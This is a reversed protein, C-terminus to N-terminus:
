DPGSAKDPHMQKIAVSFEEFTMEAVLMHNQEETIRRESEDLQLIEVNHGSTFVATYYDKVVQCMDEHNSVEEGSDTELFPLYIAKKRASASAHFFKTNADGETLWFNKARQKWYVEEYCLLDNLKEKKMFYNSIGDEDVRDVLLRIVENQRRIKDRFKHFFNRGWRAMFSSVSVLKPIINVTPLELWFDSVEKRFNPEQLWTNEFKFRFQKKLFSTSLLDLFIPDHDSVSVHYVLLKCLPFLNWWQQTAFARDLRERVWDSKGHSKEWTYKGGSLDLESLFCDDIAARFGDM